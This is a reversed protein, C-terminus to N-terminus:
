GTKKSYKFTRYNHFNMNKHKEDRVETIGGQMISQPFFTWYKAKQKCGGVCVSKHTHICEKWKYTSAVLVTKFRFRASSACLSMDGSSM